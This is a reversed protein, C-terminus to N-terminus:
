CPPVPREGIKPLLPAAKLTDQSGREKEKISPMSGDDDEWNQIRDPLQAREGRFHCESSLKKGLQLPDESPQKKMKGKLLCTACAM